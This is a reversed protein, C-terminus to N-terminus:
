VKMHYDRQYNVKVRTVRCTNRKKNTLSRIAFINCRLILHTAREIYKKSGSSTVPLIIIIFSAHTEIM